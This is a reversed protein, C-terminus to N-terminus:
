FSFGLGVEFMRNDSLILTRRADAPVERISFDGHSVVRYGANLAIRGILEYRLGAMFQYGFVSDSGAYHLNLAGNRARGLQDVSVRAFGLGAGLYPQLHFVAPIDVYVNAFGDTEKITGTDAQHGGILTGSTPRPETEAQLHQLEAELRIFPFKYGLAAAVGRNSKLSASFANLDDVRVDGARNFLGSVRFYVAASATSAMSLVLFSAGLRFLNM